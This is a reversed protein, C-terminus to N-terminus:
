KAMCGLAVTCNWAELMIRLIWESADCRNSAFAWLQAHPCKKIPQLASGLFGMRNFPANKISHAIKRKTMAEATSASSPTSKRLQM